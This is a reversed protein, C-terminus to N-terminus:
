ANALELLVDAHCPTDQACRCGLPHGRLTSLRSLILARRKGMARALSEQGKLNLVEPLCPPLFRGDLWERYFTVADSRTILYDVKYGAEWGAKSEFPKWWIGPDGVQWPNAFITARDVQITGEPRRFGKTRSLTIREPRRPM